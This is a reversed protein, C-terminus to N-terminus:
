REIKRHYTGFDLRRGYQRILFRIFSVRSLALSDSLRYLDEVEPDSLRLCVQKNRKIM